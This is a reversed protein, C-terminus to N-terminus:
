GPDATAVRHRVDLWTDGLGMLLAATFAVPYLFFLAVIGFVVTPISRSGAALFVFIAAGRFTYLAIMFAIANIAVREGGAGFPLLFVILAVILVWILQDNFRFDRFRSVRFGERDSRGLRRIWWSALALAAFSQLALISPFMEAQAASVRETALRLNEVWEAEPMRMELDAITLASLAEFHTRVLQDLLGLQGTILLAGAGLLFGVGIAALARSTISWEPRWLTIALFGGGVLLAWGRSLVGLQGSSLLAVVFLCALGVAIWRPRREGPLGLMLLGFPLLVLAIADFVSLLLVAFTLAIAAGWRGRGNSVAEEM